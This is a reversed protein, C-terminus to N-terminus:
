LLDLAIIIKEQDYPQDTCPRVFPKTAGNIERMPTVSPESTAIIIIAFQCSQHQALFRFM